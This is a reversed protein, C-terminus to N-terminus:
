STDCFINHHPLKGSNSSTIHIKQKILLFNNTISNLDNNIPKFTVLVQPKSSANAHRCWVTRGREM